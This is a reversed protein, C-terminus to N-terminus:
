PRGGTTPATLALDVVVPQHDSPEKLASAPLALTSVAQESLDEASFVFSQRITLSSGSLLVWDLRGPLFDNGTSRWTANSRRDLQFTPVIDLDSGDLDLKEATTLLPARAGVLNFDGGVVIGNLPTGAEALKASAQQIADHIAKAEALRTEDEKSNIRGCCKLHLSAFLIRKGDRELIAGSVRVDRDGKEDRRKLGDLFPAPALPARAVVGTRLDGGSVIATWPSGDGGVHTNMWEALSEATAEKGLEQWLVVDPNIGKLTASFPEPNKLHAGLEANWSVVRLPADAPKALATAEVKAIKGATAERPLLVVRTIEVDELIEVRTTEKETTPRLIMARVAGSKGAFREATRDLRLEFQRSAHAPAMALGLSAPSLTEGAGGDPNVRRVVVGQGHETARKPGSAPKTALSGREVDTPSFIIALDAGPLYGGTAGQQPTDVDVLLTLPMDLAQLNVEEAFSLYLWVSDADCDLSVATLDPALALADIGDRRTSIQGLVDWDGFEGDLTKPPLSRSPAKPLSTSDPPVSQAQVIGAGALGTLALSLLLGFGILTRTGLAHM